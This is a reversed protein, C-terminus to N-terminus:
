FLRSMNIILQIREDIDLVEKYIVGSPFFPLCLDEVLLQVQYFLQHKQPIHSNKLTGLRYTLTKIDDNLYYTFKFDVDTTRWNEGADTWTLECDLSKFVKVLADFFEKSDKMEQLHTENLKIEDEM